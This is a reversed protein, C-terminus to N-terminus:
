SHRFGMRFAGWHRGKIFIPASLDKMLVFQGGGMDRRYTQLLFPKNSAAAVKKVARDEFLRRNRCNANNWVPDPGQPKRYNPNHTPLYGGRAWAVCFVIRPDTSQLPDQIPPLVRDTFDVYRTMFQKPNTGPIERYNEDMLDALSIEGRDVAAEFVASIQKATEVVAKILPADATQVGSEAILGILAESSDLLKAIRADAQKLEISSQDVGKALENLESIVADCHALNSTAAKAVGDIEQGVSTFGDQVRVIIGGIQQAGEGATKARSSAQGSEGLLNKVQSDLGRLTDGIQQTAQRTAEALSKVESAVVAFGRGASGARAAEITANLALLNTQKAIAEIAVSVKAVQSLADGVSGLRQEIREVSDVLEAIHRVAADVVSRSQAIDGVAASTASQVAQSATAIDHNAAVMTKATTQLHGFRQSQYSFRNAVEQVNGAVDALEVGLGGIRDAIEDILREAGWRADHSELIARQAVSM